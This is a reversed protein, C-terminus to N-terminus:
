RDAHVGQWNSTAQEFAAVMNHHTIEVGKAQGTTGSSYFLFATTHIADEGDIKIPGDLQRTHNWLEDLCLLLNVGKIVSSPTERAHHTLVVHRSPGSSRALAARLNPLSDPHAFVLSADSDTLQHLLETPQYDPNAFTM